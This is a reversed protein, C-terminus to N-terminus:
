KEVRYTFDGILKFDIFYDNFIKIHTHPPQTNFHATIILKNAQIFNQLKQNSVPIINKYAHPQNVRQTVPNVAAAPIIVPIFSLSDYILGQENLFYVQTSAEIPYMNNSQLVINGGLINTVDTTSFDPVVTDALVLNGAIFSLPVEVNLRSTVKDGYYIFDTGTGPYPPTIGQNINLSVHYRFANPLNSILQNINSNNSNLNFTNVTPVVDTFLSHPDNPKTITFPTSLASGTLSISSNHSTNISTLEIVNAQAQVGVQNEVSLSVRVDNFSLEDVQLNNLVDFDITSDQEASQTGFFGRAYDPLINSISCQAYISDNMTLKIYNGSSDISGSLIYYLSNVTDADISGNGNLDGQTAEYPGIGSFDIKYGALDKSITSHSANGGSAAAIVGNIILPQGNLKAGPVEFNYHMSEEITNYVDVSITGSKAWAESVQMNNTTPILAENHYDIIQQSPFRAIASDIVINYVKINASASMATDIIVNNGGPSSINVSAWMLNELTVNTLIETKTVTTGPSVILFSDTLLTVGNGQNKLNFIIDSLALPMNNIITIDVYAQQLWITQYYGGADVNISDFVMPAVPSINSPQHTNHATMLAEYLGGYPGNLEKDMEAIDGVSVHNTINIPSVAITNLKATYSVSTDPIQAMTDLSIEALNTQYVLSISSDSNVQLLSDAVIQNITLHTKAIPTLVNVDWKPHIDEKKCSFFVIAM